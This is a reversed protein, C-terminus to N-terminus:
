PQLGYSRLTTFGRWRRSMEDRLTGFAAGYYAFRLWEPSHWYEVREAKGASIVMDVAYSRHSGYAFSFYYRNLNLPQIYNIQAPSGLLRILDALRVQDRLAGMFFFTITTIPASRSTDRTDLSVAVRFSPDDRSRLVVEVAAQFKDEKISEINASERFTDNIQVVAEELTTQGPTIGIWCPPACDNFRLMAFREPIPQVRGLLVAGSGLILVVGYLTLSYILLRRM